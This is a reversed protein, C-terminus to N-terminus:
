FRMKLSVGVAWARQRPSDEDERPWFHGLVVGGLLWDEYVPQEWRVQVGYDSLGVGSGTEGGALTELAAVRQDGFSRYAGLLTSWEFHESEQTITASNLWRAALNPTFAHEYSFATTSGFRDELSWFLTQRFDAQDNPGILWENRYRAQAFPNLGGRFGVRLDISDNLSRGLGAFFDRDRTDDLLRDQRSFAGPRDTILDRQDDRGVFAYLREEVNPLRFRANFRVDFDPDDHQRLLLATSLRGDTVKGGGAEFPRDGFWSDVGRALWVSLSRVTSRAKEAAEVAEDSLQVTLLEPGKAPENVPEQPPPAPAPEAHAAAAVTFAAWVVLALPPAKALLTRGARPASRALRKNDVTLASRGDDM